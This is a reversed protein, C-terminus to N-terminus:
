RGGTLCECLCCAVEGLCKGVAVLGDGLGSCCAGRGNWRVAFGHPGADIGEHRAVAPAPVQAQVPPAVPHIVTVAVADFPDPGTRPLPARAFEVAQPASPTALPYTPTVGAPLRAYGSLYM